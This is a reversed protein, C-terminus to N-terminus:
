EDQREKSENGEKVTAMLANQVKIALPLTGNRGIRTVFNELIWSAGCCIAAVFV